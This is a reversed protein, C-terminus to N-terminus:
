PRRRRGLNAQFRVAVGLLIERMKEVTVIEPSYESNKCELRVEGSATRTARRLTKLGGLNVAYFDDSDFEDGEWSEDIAIYDGRRIRDAQSDDPMEITSLDSLSFGEDKIWDAPLTMVRPESVAGEHKAEYSRVYLLRPKGRPDQPTDSLTDSDLWGTNKRAAKEIKRASHENMNRSNKGTGAWQSLQSQAIGSRKSIQAAMGRVSLLEKLRRRRTDRIGM